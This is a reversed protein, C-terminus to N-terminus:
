RGGTLSNAAATAVAAVQDLLENFRRCGDFVRWVELRAGRGPEVLVLIM